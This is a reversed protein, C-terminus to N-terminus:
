FFLSLWNGIVLSLIFAILFSPVFPIGYKILIKRIRGKKKYAILKKIQAKSVGLDKPGAIVRNGVKVDEAIWDGETLQEPFVKKLMAVKEVAKVFFVVYVSLYLFIVLILLLIRVIFDGPVFLSAFLLVASLVAFYKHLRARKESKFYKKFEKVFEDKHAIAKIITYSLGYFSGMVIINLLLLLLLPVPALTLKLGILAGLGMLLKSDGGGWQGLYFMLYGIIVAAILGFFGELLYAWDFLMSSYIARVGLGIFILSFNLWDPVERTKIDTVSSIVLAAFAVTLLIIDAAM